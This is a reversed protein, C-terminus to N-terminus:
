RSQSSPGAKPKFYHVTVDDGIYAVRSAAVSRPRAPQSTFHRVTVDDGFYDVEGRGPVRRTVATLRATRAAVAGSPKKPAAETGFDRPQTRTVATSGVSGPAGRERAQDRSGHAIWFTLGLGIAVAALGLSRLPKNAIVETTRRVMNTAFRRPNSFRPFRRIAALVAGCRERFSADGLFSFITGEEDGYGALPIVELTDSSGLIPAGLDGQEGLIDQYIATEVLGAMLRYKRVECDEFAHPEGFLIQFVGAVARDRYIPLILLSLAGFQRCVAGEIRTDTEANEVRLIERGGSNKASATLSAPLRSGVRPGSTGGAARFILEDGEILGIAVGAAGAVDRASDVVLNMVGDIGLDGKTVLRQVGMIDALFRSDLHSEQVAFASALFQQFSDRDVSSHKSM